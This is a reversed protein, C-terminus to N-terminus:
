YIDELLQTLSLCYFNIELQGICYRKGIITLAIMAKRRKDKVLM